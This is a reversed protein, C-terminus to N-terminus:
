APIQRQGKRELRGIRIGRNFGATIVLGYQQGVGGILLALGTLTLALYPLFSKNNVGFALYWVLVVIPFLHGVGVTRMLVGPRRLGKTSERFVRSRYGYLFILWLALNLLAFILAVKVLNGTLFLNVTILMLMLGSAKSFGSSLFIPPVLPVNWAIIGRASYVIFGQSCMLGFAAVIALGETVLNPFLWDTLVTVIFLIGSMTELSLWSTAVRRLLYIAKAPRGAEIAVALFGLCVLVAALPQFYFPQNPINKSPQLLRLLCDLLYVGTGTGGLVLHAVTLKGWVRQTTPPLLQM